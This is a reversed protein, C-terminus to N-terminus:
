RYLLTCCLRTRSVLRMRYRKAPVDELRVEITM